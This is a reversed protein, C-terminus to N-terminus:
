FKVCDAHRIPSSSAELGIGAFCKRLEEHSLNRTIFVIRTRHDSGPWQDLIEPPHFVHQVGHIVIPRDMGRVNVIGKVRLMDARRFLLLSELCTELAIPDVPDSFTLCTAQMRGHRNGDATKHHGHGSHDSGTSQEEARLWGEVDPSKAKSRYINESFLCGEQSAGNTVCFLPASPALESLQFLFPRIQEPTVLEM